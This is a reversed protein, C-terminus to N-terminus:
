RACFRDPTGSIRQETGTDLLTVPGTVHHREKREHHQFRAQPAKALRADCLECSRHSGVEFYFVRRVQLPQVVGGFGGVLAVVAVQQDMLFAQTFDTQHGAAIEEVLQKRVQVLVVGGGLTQQANTVGLAVGLKQVHLAFRCVQCAAVVVRQKGKRLFPRRYVERRKIVGFDGGNFLVDLALPGVDRGFSRALLVGGGVHNVQGAGDDDLQAAFARAAVANGVHVVHGTAPAVEQKGSFIRQAFGEGAQRHAAKALLQVVRQVRQRGDFCAKPLVRANFPAVGQGVVQKQAFFEIGDDGIRRITHVPFVQLFRQLKISRAAKMGVAHRGRGVPLKQKQLVGGVMQGVHAHGGHHM